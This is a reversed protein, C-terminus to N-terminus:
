TAIGHFGLAAGYVGGTSGSRCYAAIRNSLKTDSTSSGAANV